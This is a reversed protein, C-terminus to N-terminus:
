IVRFHVGTMSEQLNLALWSSEQQKCEAQPRASTGHSSNGCKKEMKSACQYINVHECLILNIILSFYSQLHFIISDSEYKKLYEQSIKSTHSM